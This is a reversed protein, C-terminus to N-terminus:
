LDKLEASPHRLPSSVIHCKVKSNAKLIGKVVPVSYCGDDRGGFSILLQNPDLRPSDAAAIFRANVLSYDPGAIVTNVDYASYDLLHGYINHNLVIDATLPQEAMDDMILCVGTHEKWDNVLEPPYNYGDVILVDVPGLELGNGKWVSALFGAKEIEDVMSPDSVAFHCVWNQTSLAAALVQMRRLHGLGVDPGAEVM